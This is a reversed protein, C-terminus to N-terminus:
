RQNARRLNLMADPVLSQDFESSLRAALSPINLVDALWNSIDTAIEAPTSTATDAIELTGGYAALITLAREVECGVESPLEVNLANQSEVGGGNYITVVQGDNLTLTGWVNDLRNDAIFTGEEVMRLWRAYGYEEAPMTTMQPAAADSAGIQSPSPGKLLDRFSEDQFSENYPGSGRGSRSGMPINSSNAIQMAHEQPAIVVM